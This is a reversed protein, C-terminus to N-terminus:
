RGTSGIMATIGRNKLLAKILLFDITGAVASVAIGIFIGFWPMGFFIMKAVSKIAVQGIIHAAAVALGLRLNDRKIGSHHAILGSIVGVALAGVTILPNVAPNSSCLCSIVDACVGVAGAVFPGFLVGAFIVPMNEFTIRYYINFTLFNKCLIGIVVSLATLMAALTLARTNRFQGLDERFTTKGKM